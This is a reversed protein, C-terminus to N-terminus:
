YSNTFLLIIGCIDDEGIGSLCAQHLIM